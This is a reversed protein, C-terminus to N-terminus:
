TWGHGTGRNARNSLEIKGVRGGDILLGAAWRQHASLIHCSQETTFDVIASPGIVKSQTVITYSRTDPAGHTSCRLLLVQTGRIEYDFPFGKFKNQNTPATRHVAVDALTLQRADPDIVVSGTFGKISVASAWCDEVFPRFALGIFTPKENVPDGSHSPALLIVLSEIGCNSTQIRGQLVFQVLRGPCFDADITDVIPVDFTVIRREPDVSVVTRNHRIVTGPALWTQKKGDRVLKDMQMGAIWKPTVTREVFVRDGPAFPSVDKVIV